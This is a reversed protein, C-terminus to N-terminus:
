FALVRDLEKNFMRERNYTCIILCTFWGWSLTNSTTELGAFWLDLCMNQLQIHSFSDNDGNAERRRKEKLFAEVYDKYENVGYDIDNQHAEIERDFFSYFADRYLLFRNWMRNFYPLMRLKPYTFLIFSSPHLLDELQRSLMSKLQRFEGLKEEDFRYGFLLQSIVSGVAVDFVDQMDVEEGKMTHLTNSM